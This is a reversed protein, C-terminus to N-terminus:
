GLVRVPHDPRSPPIAGITLWTDSRRDSTMVVVGMGRVGKVVRLPTDDELRLQECAELTIRAVVLDTNNIYFANGALGRPRDDSQSRPDKGPSQVALLARQLQGKEPIRLRRQEGRETISGIVVRAVSAASSRFRVSTTAWNGGRRESRIYVTTVGDKQLASTIIRANNEIHTHARGPMRQQLAFTHMARTTADNILRMWVVMDGSGTRVSRDQPLDRTTILGKPFQYDLQQSASRYPSFAQTEFFPAVSRLLDAIKGLTPPTGGSPTGTARRLATESRAGWEGDILGVYDGKSALAAQLYYVEAPRLKTVDIPKDLPGAWAFGTWILSILAILFRM